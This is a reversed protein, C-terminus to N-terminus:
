KVSTHLVRGCIVINIQCNMIKWITGSQNYEILWTAM